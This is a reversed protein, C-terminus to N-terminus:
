QKLIFLVEQNPNWKTLDLSNGDFNDEFVLVYPNYNCTGDESRVVQKGDCVAQGYLASALVISSLLLPIKKM